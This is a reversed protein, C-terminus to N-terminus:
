RLRKLKCKRADKCFGRRVMVGIIRDASLIRTTPDAHNWYNGQKFDALLKNFIHEADDDMIYGQLGAQLTVPKLLYFSHATEQNDAELLKYFNRFQELGVSSTSKFLTTM